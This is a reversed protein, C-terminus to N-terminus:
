CRYEQYVDPVYDLSRMYGILVYFLASRKTSQGSSKMNLHTLVSQLQLIIANSYWAFESLMTSYCHHETTAICIIYVNLFSLM